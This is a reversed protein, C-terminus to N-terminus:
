ALFSEWRHPFFDPTSTPTAPGPFVMHIHSSESGAEVGLPVTRLLGWPTLPASGVGASPGTDTLGSHSSHHGLFDGWPHCCSGQGSVLWCAAHGGTDEPVAGKSIAPCELGWLAPHPCLPTFPLGWARDQDGSLWRPCFWSTVLEGAPLANM